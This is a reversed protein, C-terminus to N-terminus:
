LRIVTSSDPRLFRRSTPNAPDIQVAKELENVAAPLEHLDYWTAGLGYHADAWKPKLQLAAEFEQAAQRADGKYKLALALNYHSLADKPQLELAKRYNEIAQDWTKQRAFATADRRYNEATQSFSPAAILFWLVPLFRM